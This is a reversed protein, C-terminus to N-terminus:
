GVGIGPLTARTQIGRITGTSWWDTFHCPDSFTWLLIEQSCCRILVKKGPLMWRLSQCETHCAVPDLGCEQHKPSLIEDRNWFQMYNLIYANNIEPIKWKSNESWWQSHIVLVMSLSVVSLPLSGYDSTAPTNIKFLSIWFLHNLISNIQACLKPIAVWLLM